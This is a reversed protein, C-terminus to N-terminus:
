YSAINVDVDVDIDWGLKEAIIDAIANEIEELLEPYCDILVNLDVSGKGIKVKGELKKLSAKVSIECSDFKDRAKEEAEFEDEARVTVRKITTGLVKFEVSYKTKMNIVEIRELIRFIFDSLLDIDLLGIRSV